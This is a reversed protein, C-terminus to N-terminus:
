EKVKYTIKVDYAETEIFMEFSKWPTNDNTVGRFNEVEVEKVVEKKVQNVDIEVTGICKMSKDFNQEALYFLVAKRHEGQYM